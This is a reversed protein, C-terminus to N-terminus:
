PVEWAFTWDHKPMFGHWDFGLADPSDTVGLPYSSQVIRAGYSRIRFSAMDLPRGWSQTSTVVYGGHHQTANQRYHVQIRINENPGLAVSFWQTGLFNHLPVNVTADGGVSPGFWYVRMDLAPGIGEGMAVPFTCIQRIPFRHPNEFLYTGDVEMHDPHVTVNVEEQTFRALPVFGMAVLASYLLAVSIGWIALKGVRVLHSRQLRPIVHM